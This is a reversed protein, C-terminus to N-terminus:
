HTSATFPDHQQFGLLSFVSDYVKDDKCVFFVSDSPKANLFSQPVRKSAKLQSRIEVVHFSGNSDKSYEALRELVQQGIQSVYVEGSEIKGIGLGCFYHGLNTVVDLVLLQVQGEQKVLFSQIKM